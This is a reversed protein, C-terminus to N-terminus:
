INTLTNSNHFTNSLIIYLLHIVISNKHFNVFFTKASQHSFINTFYDNRILEIPNNSDAIPSLYYWVSKISLTLQKKAVTTTVRMLLM